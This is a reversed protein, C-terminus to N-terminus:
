KIWNPSSIKSEYFVCLWPQKLKEGLKSHRDVEYGFIADFGLKKAEVCIMEIHYKTSLHLAIKNAHAEPLFNEKMLMQKLLNIKELFPYSNELLAIRLVDGTIWGRHWYDYQVNATYTSIPNNKIVALRLKESNEQDYITNLIKINSNLYVQAINNGVRKAVNLNSTFFIGTHIAPEKIKAPPPFQWKEFTESDTGHFWNLKILENNNM